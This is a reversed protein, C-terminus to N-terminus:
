IYPVINLLLFVACEGSEFVESIKKTYRLLKKFVLSFFILLNNWM